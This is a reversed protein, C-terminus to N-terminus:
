ENRVGYVVVVLLPLPTAERGVKLRYVFSLKPNGEKREWSNEANIGYQAM